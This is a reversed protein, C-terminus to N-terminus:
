LRLYPGVRLCERVDPGIGGRLSPDSRHASATVRHIHLDHHLITNRLHPLHDTDPRRLARQRLLQRRRPLPHTSTPPLQLRQSSTPGRPPINARHPITANSHGPPTNTLTRKLHETSTPFGVLQTYFKTLRPQGNNNFVLMANIM